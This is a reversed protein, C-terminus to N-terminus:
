IHDKQLIIRIDHNRLDTESFHSTNLFEPLLGKEYARALRIISWPMKGVEGLFESMTLKNLFCGKNGCNNLQPPCDTLYHPSNPNLHEWPDLRTVHDSLTGHSGWSSYYLPIITIYALGSARLVRWIEALVAPVDTIHEFVSHSVALDFSESGLPFHMGDYTIIKANRVDAYHQSYDDVDLGIYSQCKNAYFETFGNNGVGIELITDHKVNAHVQLWSWFDDFLKEKSGM